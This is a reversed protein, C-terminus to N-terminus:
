CLSLPLSCRILIDKIIFAISAADTSSLQFLGISGEHIEYEEDVYRISINLQEACSVDTAEDGIIAFWAPTCSRARSVVTRLVELSMLTIMENVHDHSLFRGQKLWVWIVDSDDSWTHLLQYLNGDVERHGRLALGQRLLFKMAALQKLLGARHVEQEKQLQTTLISDISPGRIALCKMVAERHTMSAEHQNLKEVAKKYNDFGSDTFTPDSHFSFIVMKHAKAYRCFVCFVKKQKM